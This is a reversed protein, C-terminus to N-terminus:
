NKINIGTESGEGVGGKGFLEVDGNPQVYLDYQAGRPGVIAKKLDESRTQQDATLALTGAAAKV